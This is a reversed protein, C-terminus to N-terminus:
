EEGEEDLAAIHRRMIEEIAAMKIEASARDGLQIVDAVAERFYGLDYWRGDYRAALWAILDQQLEM